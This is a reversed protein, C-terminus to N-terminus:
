HPVLTQNPPNLVNLAKIDALSELKSSVRKMKVHDACDVLRVYSPVSNMLSVVPGNSKVCDVVQPSNLINGVIHHSM